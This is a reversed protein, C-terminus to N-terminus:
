SLSPSIFILNSASKAIKYMKPRLDPRLRMFANIDTNRVAVIYPIGFRQHLQYAVGGDSFLTHAHVLGVRSLEVLSLLDRTVSRIKTRYFIRHYKRLVYSPYYDIESNSPGPVSLEKASRVPVYVTQKCGLEYITSFLESYLKQKSYGGCIHLVRKSESVM